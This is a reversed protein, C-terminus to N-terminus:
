CFLGKLRSWLSTKRVREFQRINLRVLEMLLANEAVIWEPRESTYQEPRFGSTIGTEADQVASVKLDRLDVPGIASWTHVNNICVEGIEETADLLERAFDQDNRGSNSRACQNFAFIKIVGDGTGEGVAAVFRDPYCVLGAGCIPKM